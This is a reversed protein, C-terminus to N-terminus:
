VNTSIFTFQSCYGSPLQILDNLRRIPQNVDLFDNAVQEVLAQSIKFELINMKEQLQRGLDVIRTKMEQKLQGQDEDANTQEGNIISRSNIEECLRELNRVLAECEYITTLFEDRSEMEKQDLAWKKAQDVIMWAAKLAQENDNLSPNNCWINLTLRTQDYNKRLKMSQRLQEHLSLLQNTIQQATRNALSSQRKGEQTLICLNSLLSRIIGIEDLLQDNHALELKQAITSADELANRM